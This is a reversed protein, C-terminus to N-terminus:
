SRNTASVSFVMGDRVEVSQGEVLTGTPNEHPGKTYSVTYVTDPGPPTPYALKVVQDFTIKGKPVSYERTNVVIRVQNSGEHGADSAEM